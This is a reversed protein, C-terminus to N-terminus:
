CEHRFFYIVVDRCSCCCMLCFQPISSFTGEVQFISFQHHPIEQHTISKCKTCEQDRIPRNTEALIEPGIRVGHEIGKGPGTMPVQRQCKHTYHSEYQDDTRDCHHQSHMGTMISFPFSHHFPDCPSNHSPQGKKTALCPFPMVQDGAFM